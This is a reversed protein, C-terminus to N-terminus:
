KLKDNEPLFSKKSDNLAINLENQLEAISNLLNIGKFGAKALMKMPETETSIIRKGAILADIAKAPLQFKSATSNPDQM